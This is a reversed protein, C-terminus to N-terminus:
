DEDRVELPLLPIGKRLRAIQGDSTMQHKEGWEPRLTRARLQRPSCGFERRCAKNFAHLDPIGVMAAVTAVPVTSECLLHRARQMRLLRIYGVVTLGTHTRFLRTLQNGSVAAVRAVEAVQLREALRADIYAMAKAISPHTADKHAHAALAAVRWLAAWLEASAHAPQHGVAGVVGAMLDTLGPVQGGAPQLHPIFLGQGDEGVPARFHAYYHESRGTYRFELVAGPPVLSVAGPRIRYPRGDVILDGDYRYLHIQWLLPLQYWDSLSQVGHVALGASAVQPAVSLDIRAGGLGARGAPMGPASMM